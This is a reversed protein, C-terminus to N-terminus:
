YFYYVNRLTNKFHLHTNNLVPKKHGAPKISIEDNKEDNKEDNSDKIKLNICNTCNNNDIIKDCIYNSEKNTKNKLKSFHDIFESTDKLKNSLYTLDKSITNLNYTIQQNVDM